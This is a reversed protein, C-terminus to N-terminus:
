QTKWTRSYDLLQDSMQHQQGSSIM